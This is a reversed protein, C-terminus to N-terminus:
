KNRKNFEYTKLEKYADNSAKKLKVWTPDDPYSEKFPEVKKIQYRGEELHPWINTFQETTLEISIIEEGKNASLRLEDDDNM